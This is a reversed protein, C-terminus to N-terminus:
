EISEQKKAQLSFLNKESVRGWWRPRVYFTGASAMGCVTIKDPSQEKMKRQIALAEALTAIGTVEGQKDAQRISLLEIIEGKYPRLQAILVAVAPTQPAVVELKGDIVSLTVGIDSAHKILTMAEM